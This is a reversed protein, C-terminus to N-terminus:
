LEKPIIKWAKGDLIVENKELLEPKAEKPTEELDVLYTYGTNEQEAIWGFQYLFPVDNIIHLGTTETDFAAVAPSCRKFNHIMEIADAKSTIDKSKWDLMM